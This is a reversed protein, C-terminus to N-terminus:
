RRDRHDKAAGELPEVELLLGDISVVRVPRPPTSRPPGTPAPGGRRTASPSSATRARHSGRRHRDRGGDVGPRHHPHLVPHPGHGAHRRDHRPLGRRHGRAAHDVVPVARRLAAGVRGGPSATAIGSWVRPVGTQVDVAFGFMAFLLLGVALPQHAAVALGYCGLILCGAGVLGAVGVGATYLEFVILALGILFLLYAVPPSAVTHLLQGYSRCSPSSPRPSPSASARRRRTTEVGPLGEYEPPQGYSSCASPPRRTTWWASTSPRAPASRTASRRRATSRARRRPARPHDGRPQRGVRRGVAPRRWCTRRRAPPRAARRASGCTSRCRRGDRHARRLDDFRDDSSSRAPATSSCSSPSPAQTRPRPRDPHRRLRRARRRAARQGRHRRRLRGGRSTAPAPTARRGRHRARALGVRPNRRGSRGETANTPRPGPGSRRLM